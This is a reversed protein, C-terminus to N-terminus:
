QFIHQKHGLIAIFSGKQGIKGELWLEKNKRKMDMM